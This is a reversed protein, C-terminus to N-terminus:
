EWNAVEKTLTINRHVQDCLDQSVFLKTVSTRAWNLVCDDLTVNRLAQDCLDQSVFLRTVFTRAWNLVWDDLTINRLAHDCIDQTVLLENRHYFAKWGERITTWGKKLHSIGKQMTHGSIGGGLVAVRERELKGVCVFPGEGPRKAPHEGGTRGAPYSIVVLNTSMNTEKYNRLALTKINASNDVFYRWQFCAKLYIYMM